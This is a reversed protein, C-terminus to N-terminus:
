EGCKILKKIKNNILIKWDEQVNDTWYPIELYHYGKVHAIFRKYRDKLVQYHFEYELTTGNSHATMYTFGTIEYHQKGHVEMILKLQKIENDFPMTNNTKSKPNKPIITCNHEHLIDGISLNELYLRVKQQLFSEKRESVCDPCRFGCKNSSNIERYYDEHKGDKCKWWIWENSFPKYEYPSKENKDSWIKLVEPFLTGLSDLIHVKNSHGGCYPCESKENFNACILPHSEHYNKDQCKLYIVIDSSRRAIKWPNIAEGKENINKDYDWYLKLANEGYLDILHKAFSNCQDCKMSGEFGKTFNHINKLESYHEPDKDCKFWYKISTTYLINKPNKINLKYDWRDLIDQRGNTISWDYFSIGYSMKTKAIKDIAFLRTACADCYYKGDIHVCKLYNKWEMPKLPTKCNECDCEVDVLTHSGKTLDEVKIEFEDKYATFQYGKSEYYKKTNNHWKIKVTKNILGM